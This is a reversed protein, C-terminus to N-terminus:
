TEFFNFIKIILTNNCNNVVFYIHYNNILQILFFIIQFTDGSMGGLICNQM